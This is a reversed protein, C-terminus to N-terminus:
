AKILGSGDKNQNPNIHLDMQPYALVINNDKLKQVVQKHLSHRLPWRADMDKAYTRVEFNLTHSGFGAFWVDPEPVKLAFECESVVQRLLMEVKNPDSDRAVNVTVIVRTIPDSLSWNILQETIFAKNPVIIEKRDWDVITTARIKIKSVTGSLDRITVTDGIRIPKEFLIILGSIFNAFIEQLGFGLGVSLAAVLWQLKSWEMGLSAFSALTGIFLVLYSSVTTIAFGTGTSLDLRQLITLELLGPLNKSIMISLGIIISSIFLSKLTIPLLQEIGNLNTTTTWLTVGDLFPLLSTHNQSLWALITAFFSLLLVSRVLGLSQSSITELDVVPEEYGDSSDVSGSDERERLAIREARKAKARDFAILRREILMWRKILQYALLFGLGFLLSIQMQILMQFATYYYGIASLIASSIPALFLISWMIKQLMKMNLNDKRDIRYQQIVALLHRYMLFLLYCFFIFAARGISNRFTTNDISEAFGLIGIIPFSFIMLTKLKHHSDQILAKPRGFHSILIGNDQSLIFAFRYILYVLGISLVGTGIAHTFNNTSDFLIVGAILIPVPKFCAYIITFILAKVTYKFKDQTVNGVYESYRNLLNNFHPSLLDQAMFCLITLIIWWGWSATNLQLSEILQQWQAHNFIWLGSITIDKLWLANIPTANPVWFLQENLTNKLTQHLIILQSYSISLKALEALYHDYTDILQGILVQQAQLTNIQTESLGSASFLQQANSTQQQELKYREFRSDSINKQLLEQNPPQPLSHLIDLFREGFASNSKMWTLQEQVNTLQLTLRQYHKETQEQLVIVDNIDNNIKLLQNSLEQNYLKIQQTFTDENPSSPILSNAITEATKQERNEISQKNILEILAEQQNLSQRNLQLQLRVVELQKPNANLEAQLTSQKQQLLRTQLNYRQGAPTDQPPALTKSQQSIANSAQSLLDPLLKQRATLKNLQDTLSADTEKLESLHFYAMSTQQSINLDPDLKPPSIVANLQKELNKKIKQNNANANLFSQEELALKEISASLADIQENIDLSTPQPEVPKVGMQLPNNAWSSSAFSFSLSIILLIKAM